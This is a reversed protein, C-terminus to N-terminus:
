NEPFGDDGSGSHEGTPTSISPQTNRQDEEGARQSESRRNNPDSEHGAGRPLRDDYEISRKPRSPVGTRPVDVTYGPNVFVPPGQYGVGMVEVLGEYVVVSTALKKNVDVEFQTGRVTIVATPTGLRFNPQGQLRKKVAARIKGLLLEFYSHDDAEPSKLLVSSNSKVLVESGDSLQLLASGKKTRLSSGAPLIMARSAPVLMQAPLQVQVEGKMEIVKAWGSTVSDASPAAQAWAAFSCGFVILAISLIKHSKM